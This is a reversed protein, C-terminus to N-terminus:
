KNFKENTDLAHVGFFLTRRLTEKSGKSNYEHESRWPITLAIRRSVIDPAGYFGQWFSGPITSLYEWSNNNLNNLTETVNQESNRKFCERVEGWLALPIWELWCTGKGRYNELSIVGLFVKWFDVLTRPPSIAIVSKQIWGGLAAVRAPCSWPWHPWHDMLSSFFDKAHFIVFNSGTQHLLQINSRVVPKEPPYESPWQPGRNYIIWERASILM